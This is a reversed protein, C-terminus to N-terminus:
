ALLDDTDELESRLARSQAELKRSAALPEAKGAATGGIRLTRMLAMARTALTATIGVRPNASEKGLYDRNVRGEERLLANEYAYDAQCQALTAAAILDAGAWDDLARSTMIANWYPIADDSLQMHMPVSPYDKSANVMANVMAATSDSRQRRTSPKRPAPTEAPAPCTVEPARPVAKEIKPKAAVPTPTPMTEALAQAARFERQTKRFQRQREANTMPKDHKPKPGRKLKEAMEIV